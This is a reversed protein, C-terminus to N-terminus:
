VSGSKVYHYIEDTPSQMPLYFSEMRQLYVEQMGCNQQLLEKLHELLQDVTNAYAGFGSELPIELSRYGNMGCKFQIEDPLFYLIPKKLYVFDFCFSSFDTIFVAYDEQRIKNQFIMVRNSNLQFLKQYGAFIPHLKFDLYFDYQQLLDQLKESNLFSEIKQYYDSALLKEPTQEWIGDVCRGILYERWSPAFLIRNQTSSEWSMKEFRPMGSCILDEPRFHYKEVFLTQEYHSSVVVRDAMIVEPTYKWPMSAHLIGHQLYIVEFNFHDSYYEYQEHPFPIINVDEIFATIIKKCNLFLLQHKKSGFPVVFSRHKKQFYLDPNPHNPDIIYYRKVGDQQEFDHLFQILGNDALVGKCDYYLWITQKQIRAAKKCIQYADPSVEKLKAFHRNKRWGTKGPQLYFGNKQFSIFVNEFYASYRKLAHSFAIKPMFYYSVPYVFQNWEVQFSFQRIASVDCEYYFGWFRNTKTHCIYYSHASEFLQLKKRHGNEVVFLEPKEAFSFAVSKLFGLFTLKGQIVKFKTVVIEIKQDAFVIGERDSLYFRKLDQSFQLQDTTKLSLFYYKHFYDIQPHHLIIRNDIRNLLRIIRSKALAFEAIPYHYPFLLESRMKWSLDNIYLGQFAKPVSDTYRAFLQEFFSISQEFIYCAGAMRGSSSNDSRYYRYAAEKCFGMKLKRSLVDCCYKQDEMFNMKTDFLQNQFFRNKVMINMTTQGIYPHLNLDFVGSHNLTQYRFHPELVRGRYYTEIPYTLLDIEYYHQEFFALLNPISGQALEDDADLYLLYKGKAACIGANRTDSVGTNKKAIVQIKPYMRPYKGPHKGPCIRAYEECIQLSNDVSGDDILLIEVSIDKIQSLVSQLARSLDRASNYVPIIVSIQYQNMM